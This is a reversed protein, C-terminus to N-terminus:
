GLIFFETIAGDAEITLPVSHTALISLAADLEITISVAITAAIVNAIVFVVEALSLFVFVAAITISNAVQLVEFCLQKAMIMIELSAKTQAVAKVVAIKM